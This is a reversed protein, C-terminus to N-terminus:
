KGLLEKRKAELDEKSILNKKYLDEYQEYLEQERTKPIDKVDVVVIKKEVPRESVEKPIEYVLRVINLALALVGLLSSITLLTDVLKDNVFFSAFLCALGVIIAVLSVYFLIKSKM